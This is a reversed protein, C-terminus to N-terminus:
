SPEALDSSSAALSQGPAQFDLVGDRALTMALRQGVETRGCDCLLAIANMRAAVEETAESSRSRLIRAIQARHLQILLWRRGLSAEPGPM